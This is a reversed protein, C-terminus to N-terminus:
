VPPFRVINTLDVTKDTRHSGRRRRRRTKVIYSTLGVDNNVLKTKDKFESKFFFTIVNDSIKLPVYLLFIM